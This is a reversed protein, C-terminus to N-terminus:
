TKLRKRSKRRSARASGGKKAAEGSGAPVADLEEDAWQECLKWYADVQRNFQRGADIQRRALDAQQPSLYRSKTKGKKASTLSLYPGHRKNADSHCACNSKSCKVFRESVSGHRMAQPHSVRDGLDSAANRSPTDSAM